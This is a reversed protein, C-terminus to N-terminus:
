EGHVLEGSNNLVKTIITPQQAEFVQSIKLVTYSTGPKLAALRQAEAAANAEDFFVDKVIDARAMTAHGDPHIMDRPIERRTVLKAVIFMM